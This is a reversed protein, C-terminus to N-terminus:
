VVPEVIHEFRPNHRIEEETMFRPSVWHVETVGGDRHCDALTAAKEAQAREGELVSLTWGPSPELFLAMADAIMQLAEARTQGDSVCGPMAPCFATLWEDDPYPYRVLVVEYQAMTM